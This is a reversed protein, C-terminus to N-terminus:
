AFVNEIDPKHLFPLSHVKERDIPERLRAMPPGRPQAPLGPRPQRNQGEVIGAM